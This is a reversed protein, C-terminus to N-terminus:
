YETFDRCIWSSLSILWTGATHTQDQLDHEYLRGEWHKIQVLRVTKLKLKFKVFVSSAHRNWKVIILM